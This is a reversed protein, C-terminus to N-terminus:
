LTSISGTRKESTMTSLSMWIATAMPLPPTSSVKCWGSGASTLVRSAPLPSVPLPVASVSARSSLMWAISYRSPKVATMISGRLLSLSLSRRSCSSSKGSPRSIAAKM